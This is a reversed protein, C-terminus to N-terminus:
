AHRQGVNRILCLRRLTVHGAIITNSDSLGTLQRAPRSNGADPKNPM